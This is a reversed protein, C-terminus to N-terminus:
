SQEPSAPSRTDMSLQKIIANKKLAQFLFSYFIIIFPSVPPINLM